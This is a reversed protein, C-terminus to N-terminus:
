QKMKEQNARMEEFSSVDSCISLVNSNAEAPMFKGSPSLVIVGISSVNGHTVSTSTSSSSSCTLRSGRLGVLWHTTIHPARSPEVLIQCDSLESKM